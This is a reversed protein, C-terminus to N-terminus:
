RVNIKKCEFELEVKTLPKVRKYVVEKERNILFSASDARIVWGEEVGPYIKSVAFANNLFGQIYKIDKRFKVKNWRKVELDQYLEKGYVECVGGGVNKIDKKIMLCRTRESKIERNGRYSCNVYLQSFENDYSYHYFGLFRVEGHQDLRIPTWEETEPQNDSCSATIFFLFIIWIFRFEM